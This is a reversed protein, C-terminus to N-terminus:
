PTPTDNVEELNMEVNVKVDMSRGDYYNQLEQAYKLADEETEFQSILQFGLKSPVNDEQTFSYDRFTHQIKGADHTKNFNHTHNKGWVSGTNNAIIKSSFQKRTTAM